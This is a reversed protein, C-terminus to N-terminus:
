SPTFEVTDFVGVLSSKPPVCDGGDTISMGAPTSYVMVLRHGSLHKTELFYFCM